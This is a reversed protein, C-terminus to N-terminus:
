VTGNDVEDTAIQETVEKASAHEITAEFEEFTIPVKEYWGDTKTYDRLYQRYALLSQREDTEEIGLEREDNNRSIRWEFDDIMKDRILRITSQKQEVPLEEAYQEIQEDTERYKVIPKDETPQEIVVLPKYGDKTMLEPSLNYNSIRGKNKPAFEIKGDTLKAYQM